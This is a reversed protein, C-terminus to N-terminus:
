LAAWLAIANFRVACTLETASISPSRMLCQLMQLLQPVLSDSEDFPLGEAGICAPAPPRNAFDRGLQSNRNMGLQCHLQEAGIWPRLRAVQSRLFQKPALARKRSDEAEVINGRNARDCRQALSPKLHRSIHRNDAEVIYDKGSGAM